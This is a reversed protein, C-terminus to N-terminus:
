INSRQKGWISTWLSPTELVSEYVQVYTHQKFFQVNVQVYPYHKYFQGYVQVYPHHKYFWWYAQACTHYKYVSWISTWLHTSQLIFHGNAQVYLHNKNIWSYAQGCTHQKYFWVCGQVNPPRNTFGQTGVINRDMLTTIM